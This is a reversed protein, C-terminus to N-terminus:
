GGITVEDGTARLGPMGTNPVIAPWKKGEVVEKVRAASAKSMPEHVITAVLQGLVRGFRGGPFWYDMRYHARSGGPVPEIVWTAKFRGWPSQGQYALRHPPQWEVIEEHFAFEVGDVGSSALYRSGLGPPQHSLMEVRKIAPVWILKSRPDGVVRFVEEAPAVFDVVYATIVVAEGVRTKRGMPKPEIRNRLNTLAWHCGLQALWCPIVWKWVGSLRYRLTFDVCTGGPEPTLQTIAEMEWGSVAQYAFRENEIWATVVEDFQFTLGLPLTFTWRYVTGVGAKQEGIVTMATFPNSTLFPKRPDGIAAFITAAPAAIHVSVAVEQVERGARAKQWLGVGLQALSRPLRLLRDFVPKIWRPASHKRWALYRRGLIFLLHAASAVAGLTALGRGIKKGMALEEKAKSQGRTKKNSKFRKLLGSM